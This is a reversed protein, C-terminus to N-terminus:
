FTYVFGLSFPVRSNVGLGFVNTKNWGETTTSTIEDEQYYSRKIQNWGLSLLGLEANVSIHDNFKYAISPVIEFGIEFTKPHDLTGKEEITKDDQEYVRKESGFVIPLKADAYLQINAFNAFIYRFFPAFAFGSTKTVDNYEKKMPDTPVKTAERVFGVTAGFGIVDSFMYGVVPLIEFNSIKSEYSLVTESKNDFTTTVESKGSMSSFGINGGVFFQANAVLGTAVLVFVILFKKM